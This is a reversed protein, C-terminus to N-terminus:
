HAEGNSESRNMSDAAPPVPKESQLRMTNGTWIILAGLIFTIVDKWSRFISVFPLLIVLVGLSIVSSSPKSM